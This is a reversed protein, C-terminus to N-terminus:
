IDCITHRFFSGSLGGIGVVAINKNLADAANAAVKGLGATDDWSHYVNNATSVQKIKSDPNFFNSIMITGTDVPFQDYDVGKAKIADAQQVFGPLHQSSCAPTFAGPVSFLVVKKGKFLEDSSMAGPGDATMVGFGGEPMKDGVSITM